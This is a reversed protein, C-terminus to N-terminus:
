PVYTVVGSIKIKATITMFKDDPRDKTFSQLIGAFKATEGAIDVVQYNNTTGKLARLGTQTTDGPILNMKVTVDGEDVLGGVFTRHNGSTGMDTSDLIDAKDSGDSISIVGNVATFGETPTVGDGVKLQSGHGIKAM